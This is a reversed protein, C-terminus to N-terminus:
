TADDAPLDIEIELAGTRDTPPQLEFGGHSALYPALYRGVIKGPPWWLPEGSVTSTDGQGGHHESRLYRPEGGTLLLGRLVPQFRHPQVAAGAQAAIVEAVADAQQAAIGGQKIPFQTIDGAAYVNPLGHVRGSLDTAIFGDANQPIGLIRPGELRPLAVVREAALTTDPVLELIGAEYRAPYRGTHLSISHDSLLDRVAYGAAEGFLSLPAQEPTVFALEVHKDRRALHTATLLALEYLPLPWVGTAPLTFAISRVSGNEAEALLRRFADSDAPGRFTLAGTLWARPLAGCAIVLADYGIEAGQSTRATRADADVSALQGLTFSASASAAIAALEFHHARGADFPEAVALPRYWFAPEPALLELDVLDGALARLALLAELGAVGGGAILVRLGGYSKPHETKTVSSCAKGSPRRTGDTGPGIRERFVRM